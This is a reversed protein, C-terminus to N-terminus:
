GSAGSSSKLAGEDQGVERSLPAGVSVGVQRQVHTAPMLVVFEASQGPVRFRREPRRGWGRRWWADHDSGVSPLVM